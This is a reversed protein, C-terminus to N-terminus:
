SEAISQDVPHPVHTIHDISGGEYFLIYAGTIIGTDPCYHYISDSFVM